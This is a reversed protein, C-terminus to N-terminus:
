QCYELALGIICQVSDYSQGKLGSIWFRTPPDDRFRPGNVVPERARPWYSLATKAGNEIESSHVDGLWDQRNNHGFASRSLLM